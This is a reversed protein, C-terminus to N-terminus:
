WAMAQPANGFSSGWCSVDGGSTLVACGYVGGVSIQGFATSGVVLQPTATTTSGGHGLEGGNGGGFCRLEENALEVCTHADGTHVATATTIGPVDLAFNNSTPSQV